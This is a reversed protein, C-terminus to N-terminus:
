VAAMYPFVHSYFSDSISLYEPSSLHYDTSVKNERLIAKAYGSTIIYIALCNMSLVRDLEEQRLRM